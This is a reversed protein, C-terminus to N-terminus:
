RYKAPRGDRQANAWMRTNATSCDNALSKIAWDLLENVLSSNFVECYLEEYAVSRMDQMKVDQM